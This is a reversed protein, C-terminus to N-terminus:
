SDSGEVCVEFSERNISVLILINRLVGPPSVMAVTGPVPWRVSVRPVFTRSSASECVVACAPELGASGQNFLALGPQKSGVRAVTRKTGTYVM